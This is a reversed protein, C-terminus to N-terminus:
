KFYRSESSGHAACGKKMAEKLKPTLIVVKAHLSNSVEIAFMLQDFPAVDDGEVFVEWNARRVLKSQLAAELQDRSIEAENLLLHSGDGRQRVAVVIPGELCNQDPAVSYRPSLRVYIGRALDHQTVMVFVPVLLILIMAGGVLGRNPLTTFKGRLPLRRQPRVVVSGPTVEVMMLSSQPADKCRAEPADATGEALSSFVSFVLSGVCLIAILIGANRLQDYVSYYSYSDTLVGIRPHGTNLCTPDSTIESTVQYSGRGDAYFHGLYRDRGEISEIVRGNSYVTSRSAMARYSLGSWCGSFDSDVWVAVHYWGKLNVSFDPTRIEGKSLSVPMDLAVFTRTGLWLRYVQPLVIAALAIGVSLYALRWRRLGM